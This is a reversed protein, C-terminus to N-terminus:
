ITGMGGFLIPTVIHGVDAYLLESHDNLANLVIISMDFEYHYYDSDTSEVNKEIIENTTLNELPLTYYINTAMDLPNPCMVSFVNSVINNSCIVDIRDGNSFDNYMIGCHDDFNIIHYTNLISEINSSDIVSPVQSIDATNIPSIGILVLTSHNGIQSLMNDAQEKSNILLTPYFIQDATNCKLVVEIDKIPTTSTTSSNGTVVRHYGDIDIQTQYTRVINNEDFRNPM